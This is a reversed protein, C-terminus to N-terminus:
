YSNILAYERWEELINLWREGEEKSPAKFKYV